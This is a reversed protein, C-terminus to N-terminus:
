VSAAFMSRARSSAANASGAGSVAPLAVHNRPGADIAPGVTKYAGAITPKAPNSPDIIQLGESDSAVYALTGQM